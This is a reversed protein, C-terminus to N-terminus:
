TPLSSNEVVRVVWYPRAKYKVSGGGGAITASVTMNATLGTTEGDDQLLTWYRERKGLGTLLTTPVAALYKALTGTIGFEVTPQVTLAGGDLNFGSVIWGVEEIWASCNSPITVTVGSPAALLDVEPGYIINIRSGYNIWYDSSGDDRRVCDLGSINITSGIRNIAGYGLAIAKSGSAAANWGMTVSYTGTAACGTGVACAGAVTATSGGICTSQSGTGPILVAGTATGAAPANGLIIQPTVTVTGVVTPNSGPSPPSTPHFAIGGGSYVNTVVWTGNVVGGGTAWTWGSLTITQGICVNDGTATCAITVEGGGDVTHHTTTADPTATVANGYIRGCANVRIADSLNGNTFGLVNVDRRALGIDKTANGDFTSSWGITSSNSMGILSGYDFDLYTLTDPGIRIITNNAYFTRNGIATQIAFQESSDQVCLASSVVQASISNHAFATLTNGLQLKSVVTITGVVTPNTGTGPCTTPTITFTTTSPVTGIVWTGNVVGGTGGAWTWTALTVIQGACLNHAATTKITCITGNTTHDAAVASPTPNAVANGYIRGASSLRIADSTSGNTIGIVNAAKYTVGVDYATGFKIQSTNSNIQVSEATTINTGDDTLSSDAYVPGVANTVKPIVNVTGTGSAGSAGWSLAGAGNNILTTSAGGQALPLTLTYSAPTTIGSQLTIQNANTGNNFVLAGSGGGSTGIALNGSEVWIAYNYTQTSNLGTAPAGTVAFTAATTITSAAVFAYTPAQIRVARQTTIAGTSFQVTRALNYNVDTAEVGAALTTHAAANLRWAAPSGTTAVTQGQTIGTGIDTLSSDGYVPGTTNTLKPIVNLSGTATVAYAWSLVGAGNNQLFTTAAGQTDPLTWTHSASTAGGQILLYNNNAANLWIMSGVASGSTGLALQGSQIWAAYTNTFAANAGLAPAGTVAFTAATTVVSGAVFAYTPAQIVVARQTAIAGTAFQVTRALNFNVDTAQVGAALTTHAAGTVVFASPSGSTAATQAVTVTIDDSAVNSDGVNNPATFKSLRNVTGAAIGTLDHWAGGNETVEFTQLATNYRMRGENAASVAVNQGDTYNVFTANNAGAVAVAGAVTITTAAETMISDGVNTVATFKAIKGATGPGVGTLDHWAVGNESFEFTQTNANYRIRGENAGSVPDNQGDTFNIFTTTNTGALNVSGAVTIATGAETMISDGIVMPATFKAIKGATGAGLIGSGGFMQVVARFNLNQLLLAYDKYFVGPSPVVYFAYEDTISANVWDFGFYQDCPFAQGPIVFDRSQVLSSTTVDWLQLTFPVNESPSSLNIALEIQHLGLAQVIFTGPTVGAIVGSSPSVHDIALKTRAPTIRFSGTLGYIVGYAM